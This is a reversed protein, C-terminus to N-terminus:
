NGSLRKLVEQVADDHKEPIEELDQVRNFYWTEDRGKVRENDPVNGRYLVVTRWVYGNSHREPRSIIRAIPDEEPGIRSEFREAFYSGSHTAQM